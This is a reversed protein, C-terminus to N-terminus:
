ELDEIPRSQLIPINSTTSVVNEMGEIEDLLQFLRTVQRLGPGVSVKFNGHRDTTASSKKVGDMLLAFGLLVPTVILASDKPRLVPRVLEPYIDSAGLNAGTLRVQDLDHRREAPDNYALNCRTVVIATEGESKAQRIARGSLGLAIVMNTINLTEYLTRTGALAKDIKLFLGTALGHFPVAVVVHRRRRVVLLDYLYQERGRIVKTRPIQLEVGEENTVTRRVRHHPVLSAVLGHHITIEDGDTGPIHEEHWKGEILRELVAPAGSTAASTRLVEATYLQNCFDPRFM